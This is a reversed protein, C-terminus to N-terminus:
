LSKTGVEPCLMLGGLLSWNRGEPLTCILDVSLALAACAASSGSSPLSPKRSSTAGLSLWLLRLSPLSLKLVGFGRGTSGPVLREETLGTELRWTRRGLVQESREARM